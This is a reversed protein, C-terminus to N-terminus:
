QHRQVIMESRRRENAIADNWEQVMTTGSKISIRKIQKSETTYLIYHIEIKGYFQNPEKKKKVYANKM